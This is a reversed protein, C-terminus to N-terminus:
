RESGHRGERYVRVSALTVDEKSAFGESDQVTQTEVISATRNMRGYSM